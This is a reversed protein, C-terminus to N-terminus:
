LYYLYLQIDNRCFDPTQPDFHSGSGQSPSDKSGSITERLVQVQILRYTIIPKQDANNNKEGCPLSGEHASNTSLSERVASSEILVHRHVAVVPVVLAGRAAFGELGGDVKTFVQSHVSLCLAAEDASDTALHVGGLM